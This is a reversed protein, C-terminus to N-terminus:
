HTESVVPCPNKKAATHPGRWSNPGGPTAYLAAFLDSHIENTVAPMGLSDKATGAHLEHIKFWEARAADDGPTEKGWQYVAEYFSTIIKHPSDRYRPDDIRKSCIYRPPGIEIRGVEEHAERTAAFEASIDTPDVFGGPFRWTTEGPKQILLVEEPGTGIPPEGDRVTILPIKTIAIDVTHFAVPYRVGFDVKTKEPEDVDKKFRLTKIDIADLPLEDLLWMLAVLIAATVIATGFPLTFLSIITFVILLKFSNQKM